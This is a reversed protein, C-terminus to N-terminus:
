GFSEIGNQQQHQERNQAGQLETADNIRSIIEDLLFERGKYGETTGPVRMSALPNKQHQRLLHAFRTRFPPGQKESIFGDNMFCVKAVEDFSKMVGNTTGYVAEWPKLLLAEDQIPGSKTDIDVVQALPVQVDDMQDFSESNGDDGVDVVDM